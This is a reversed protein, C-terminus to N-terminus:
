PTAQYLLGLVPMTDSFDISGSDDPNAGVIFHDESEYKVESHRFGGALTWRDDLYWTGILYQDFDHVLDDEDRRLDGREGLANVYGKRIEDMRDYAVGITVELPSGAVQGSGHWRLEGGGFNRDLDVVGGSGTIAVSPNALYQTIQRTGYYGMARVNNSESFAHDLVMGGQVHHISKRTNFTDAGIGAQSPDADLQAQTLGLPDQTDPQDLYNGIVTVTTAEGAGYRAWLNALDRQAASHDRFGDTEFRSVNGSFDVPGADGSFKLAGRWTGNDGGTARAQVQGPEPQDATILHIVGGASNGYLAAFPGRLVEVREAGSLDFLATQGQGDPMTLPIGDQILRVGRVGFSARAGFGRSSVQLDQAYNYRNQVVIGPIKGLGESLDVNQRHERLDDGGVVDIAVPIDFASKETRTATVVMSGTSAPTATEQAGASAAAFAMLTGVVTGAARM